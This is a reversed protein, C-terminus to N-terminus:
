ISACFDLQVYRYSVGRSTLMLVRNRIEIPLQLGDNRKKKSEPHEEENSLEARITSSSADSLSVDTDEPDSSDESSITSKYASAM